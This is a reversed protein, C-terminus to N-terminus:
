KEENWDILLENLPFPPGTALDIGSTEKAYKRFKVVWPHDSTCFEKIMKAPDETEISGIQLDPAGNGPPSRQLWVQERTIGAIKYFEDHEKGSANEENYQKVFDLKGPLLPIVLCYNVM